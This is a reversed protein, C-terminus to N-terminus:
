SVTGARAVILTQPGALPRREIDTWGAESLWERAEV